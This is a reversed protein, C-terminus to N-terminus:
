SNNDFLPDEVKSIIAWIYDFQIINRRDSGFSSEDLGASNCSFRPSNAILRHHTIWSFIKILKNLLIKSFILRSDNLCFHTLRINFNGIHINKFKEEIQVFNLFLSPRLFALSYVWLLSSIFISMQVIYYQSLEQFM